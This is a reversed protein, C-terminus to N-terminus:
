TPTRGLALTPIPSECRDATRCRRRLVSAPLEAHGRCRSFRRQWRTTRDFDPDNDLHHEVGNGVLFEDGVDPAFNKWSRELRRRGSAVQDAPRARM